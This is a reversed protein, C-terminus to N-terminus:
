SGTHAIPVPFVGVASSIEVVCAWMRSTDSFGEPLCCIYWNQVSSRDVRIICCREHLDGFHVSHQNPSCAQVRIRKPSYVGCRSRGLLPRLATCDSKCFHQARASSKEPADRLVTSLNTM